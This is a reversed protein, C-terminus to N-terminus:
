GRSRVAVVLFLAGFFGLFLSLPVAMGDPAAPHGTVVAVVPLAALLLTGAGLAALITAATASVGADAPTRAAVAEFAARIEDARDAPATVFSPGSLGRTGAFRLRFLVLDGVRHTRVSRLGDLDYVRDDGAGTPVSLTAEAVDLTGAASLLSAAVAGLFVVTLYGFFVPPHRAAVVIAVPGLVVAVAAPVPRVRRLAPFLDRFSGRSAVAGFVYLSFPGGFVVLVVALALFGVDGDLASRAALVVLLSLSLAAAGGLLGLAAYRLLSRLRHAGDSSWSVVTPPPTADATPSM